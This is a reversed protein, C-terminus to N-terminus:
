VQAQTAQANPAHREWGHRQNRGGGEAPQETGGEAPQNAGDEAPVGIKLADLLKKVDREEADIVFEKRDYGLAALQKGYSSRLM